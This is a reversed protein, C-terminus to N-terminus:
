ELDMAKAAYVVIEKLDTPLSDWAKKNIVIETTTSPEHWGTTYYYKAANQLGLKMDLFPGVWEAADIVGRELAPFIEGGPLLKVDVGLT